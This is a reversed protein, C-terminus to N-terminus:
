DTSYRDPYTSDIAWCIFMTGPSAATTAGGLGRTCRVRGQADRRPEGSVRWGNPPKFRGHVRLEKSCKEVSWEYRAKGNRDHARAM